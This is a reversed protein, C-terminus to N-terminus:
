WLMGEDFDKKLLFRNKGIHPNHCETCDMDKKHDEIPMIYGEAHCSRCMENTKGSLLMFPYKSSHPSHCVTCLGSSVPGHVWLGRNYASIM